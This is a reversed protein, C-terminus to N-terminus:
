YYNQFTEFISSIHCNPFTEFLKLFPVDFTRCQYNTIQLVAISRQDRNFLSFVLDLIQVCSLHKKKLLFNGGFHFVPKVEHLVLYYDHLSYIM